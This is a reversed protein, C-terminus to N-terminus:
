ILAIRLPESKAVRSIAIGRSDVYQAQVVFEWLGPQTTFIRSSLTHQSDQGGNSHLFFRQRSLDIPHGSAADTTLQRSKLATSPIELRVESTPTTRYEGLLLPYPDFREVVIDTSEVVLDFSSRNELTLDLELGKGYAFGGDELAVTGYTVVRGRKRETLPMVRDLAIRLRPEVPPSPQSAAEPDSGKPQFGQDLLVKLLAAADSDWLERRLHMAQLNALQAISPTTQLAHTSVPSAGDVLIPIVLPVAQLGTEIELRVWDGPLNLRRDGTTQDYTRLWDSGILVLMATSRHVEDRLRDPWSDGGALHATDLFVQGPALVRELDAFLRHAENGTDTSRYNIFLYKSDM